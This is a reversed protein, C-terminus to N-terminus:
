RVLASSLYRLVAGGAALAVPLLVGLCAIGWVALARRPAPVALPLRAAAVDRAVQRLAWILAIGEALFLAVLGVDIIVGQLDVPGLVGRGARELLWFVGSAGNWLAHAGVAISYYRVLQRWAGEQKHFVGFWGLSVLGAGFPHLAGGIGRVVTIGTWWLPIGGGEYMINEIIAFGAGCAMGILLADRPTQIRRGLIIVGLPKVAEEVIPAVVALQALLFLAAPSRLLDSFRGEDIISVIERIFNGVPLALLAVISPLLIELVLAALVSLTGGAVVAVLVRRVTPPSRVEMAALSLVALPPLAAGLFLFPAFNLTPAERVRLIVAGASVVLVFALMMLWPAPLRFRKSPTGALSRTIQSIAIVGGILFGATLAGALPAFILVEFNSALVAVLGAMGLGTMVYSAALLTRKVGASLTAPEVVPEEAPSPGRAAPRLRRLLAGMATLAMSAATFLRLPVRLPEWFVFQPAPVSLAALEILVVGAFSLFALCSLVVIVARSM